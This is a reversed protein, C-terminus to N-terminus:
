NKIVPFEGMSIYRTFRRYLKENKELDKIAQTILKKCPTKKTKVIYMRRLLDYLRLYRLLKTTNEDGWLFHSMLFQQNNSIFMDPLAELFLDHDITFFTESDESDELM